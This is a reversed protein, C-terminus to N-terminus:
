RGIGEYIAQLRRSVVDTRHEREVWSRSKKGLKKRHHPDELLELLSKSITAADVDVIPPNEHYGGYRSHDFHTM